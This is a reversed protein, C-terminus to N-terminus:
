LRQLSLNGQNRSDLNKRHGNHQGSTELNVLKELMKPAVTCEELNRKRCCVGSDIYSAHPCTFYFNDPNVPLPTGPLYNGLLVDDGIVKCSGMVFRPLTM